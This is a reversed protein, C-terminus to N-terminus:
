KKVVVRNIMMDDIHVYVTYTGTILGGMPITQQHYGEDLTQPSTQRMPVGINNHVTFWIQAKRTLKYDIILNSIVPNPNMRAETFVREAEPIPNGYIDTADKALLDPQKNLEEPSYYFSTFFVTTDAKSEAEEGRQSSPKHLTTKISEFIPYRIDNAYWTYTDLTMEVSDKGTETYYRLTHTRLAKNVKKNGPLKLTGEADAEVLTYGKVHLPLLNCYIGKGEFASYLTDGYTFPFKLKLEPKSYNLLTTYNEFGLAWLSDTQQRYYYRTRHEMGCLKSKDASDPTFYKILYEENIINLNSFDWELERGISGPDKYEVQYKYISDGAQYGNKETTLKLPAQSYTFALSCISLLLIILLPKKM